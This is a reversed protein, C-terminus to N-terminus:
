TSTPLGRHNTLKFGSHATWTQARAPPITNLEQALHKARVTSREVWSYLHTGIFHEPFMGDLPLLFVRLRKMRYFSRYAGAAILWDHSSPKVSLETINYFQIKLHKM